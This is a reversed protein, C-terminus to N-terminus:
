AEAPVPPTYALRPSLWREAEEVTM